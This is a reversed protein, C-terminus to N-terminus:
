KTFWEEGYLKCKDDIEQQRILFFSSVFSLNYEESFWGQAKLANWVVLLDLM